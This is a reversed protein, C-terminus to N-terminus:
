SGDGAQGEEQVQQKVEATQGQQRSRLATIDTLPKSSKRQVKELERM